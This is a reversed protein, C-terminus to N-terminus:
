RQALIVLCNAPEFKFFSAKDLGNVMLTQLLYKSESPTEKRALGNYSRNQRLAATRGHATVPYRDVETVQDRAGIVRASMRETAVSLIVYTQV